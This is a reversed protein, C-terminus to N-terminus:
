PAAPVYPPHITIRDFRQGQVPDYLDGQLVTVNSVDNLLRTASGSDRRPTAWRM